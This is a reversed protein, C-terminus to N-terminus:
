VYDLVSVNSSGYLTAYSNKAEFPIGNDCRSSTSDKMILELLDVACLFSLLLNTLKKLFFFRVCIRIIINRLLKALRRKKKFGM